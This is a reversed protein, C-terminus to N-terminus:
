RKGGKGINCETCLTRLNEKNSNGGLSIPIIHDINIRSDDGCIVCRFNDRKFIEFRLKPSIYGLLKRRMIITDKRTYGMQSTIYEPTYGKNILDIMFFQRLQEFTIKYGLTKKSIRLLQGQLTRRPINLMKTIDSIKYGKSSALIIAEKYKDKVSNILIKIEEKNPIKSSISINLRNKM